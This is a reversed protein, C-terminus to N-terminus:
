FTVTEAGGCYIGNFLFKFSGHPQARNTILPGFLFLKGKGVDAEIVTVGGELYHQGWAWGSRLPRDSDFWVVPRVGKGVAEPRLRFVPSNSFYVDLEEPLGHAVPISNDVRVRHVSGPMYYKDPPLPTETRDPGRETLANAIPLGLHYGLSTSSDITLITGGDDLFRRLEPVTKDVTVTGLRDRYEAPISEPEPGARPQRARRGPPLDREREPIAGPVFVLVDVKEALHGADLSQPYIVEFPFEYQEFMWRVWGSPMSGGYQDWLGIRVPRLRLAQGSPKSTAPEFNLGMESAAKELLAVASPTAPIYFTGAPHSKGNSEIPDLLWNVEEGSGLLRNVAIFADNVQHSLLYGPAGRGTLKAAPPSAFGEIKEFPGDFGDLIRDFDVAMQFALTYGANDYPAIPPGGPYLFDNPYDQPEFMDMIHPRFAQATKVIYSDGPYSKGAVEFPRTARHITIGNKILTNVFKTATLFDPQDSPLIYVKPDRTEPDHLMDYYKVPFGGRRGAMEVKDTDIAARVAAIRSSSITWTDRSGRDISNKGMRYIRFLFDERHKSAVDLMGRDATILYDITRRFHWKQPAVPYPIDNTKLLMEPIFAIKMPTPNGSIESLVGIINHFPSTSRVLGNTWNQYSAASRCAAGPKGEVVFRSHVASSVLEMSPAMLPDFNPNSPDRMAGIYLVAGAPGSQHQNYAIQPFWERYLVRCIAETEPMNVMFSDRNNDHGIYKHYLRPLQGTSRETPEPVRMYWNAVLELGDPNALTALFIVDNLLRLTEDDDLSAMQYVMETLSQPNAVETAHLGADIWVVARGEAALARAEEDTLGEALALRRAIEKYRDLREHNEPSTVIAMTMPRGEASRGIEVVAIRNSERDLKKWYETIQTNNALWYDEGIEHGFQEKPTTIKGQALAPTAAFALTLLLYVAGLKKNKM